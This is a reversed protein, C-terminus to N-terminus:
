ADGYVLGASTSFTNKGLGLPELCGFVHLIRSFRTNQNPTQPIDKMHPYKPGELSTPHGTQGTQGPKYSVCRTPGHLEIAYARGQLLEWTSFVKPGIYIALGGFHGFVAWIGKMKTISEM